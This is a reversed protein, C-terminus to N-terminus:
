LYIEFSKDSWHGLVPPQIPDTLRLVKEVKTNPVVYAQEEKNDIHSLDLTWNWFLLM